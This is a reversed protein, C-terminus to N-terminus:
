YTNYQFINKHIKEWKKQTKKHKKKKINVM